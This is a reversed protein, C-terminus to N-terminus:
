SRAKLAVVQVKGEGAQTTTARHCLPSPTALFSSGAAGVTEPEPTPQSAWCDFEACWDQGDECIWQGFLSLSCYPRLTLPNVLCRGSCLSQAELPLALQHGALLFLVVLGTKGLLAFNRTM